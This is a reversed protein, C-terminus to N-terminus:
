RMTKLRWTSSSRECGSIAAKSSMDTPVDLLLRCLARRYRCRRAGGKKLRSLLSLLTQGPLFALLPWDHVGVRLGAARLIRRTVADARVTAPWRSARPIGLATGGPPPPRRGTSPAVWRQGAPCGLRFGRNARVRARGYGSGSALAPRPFPYATRPQRWVKGWKVCGALVHRGLM